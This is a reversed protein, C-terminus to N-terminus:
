CLNLCTAVGGTPSDALSLPNSITCCPVLRIPRARVKPQPARQQHPFLFPRAPVTTGPDRRPGSNTADVSPAPAPSTHPPRTPKENLIASSTPYSVHQRCRASTAGGLGFQGTPGVGRM